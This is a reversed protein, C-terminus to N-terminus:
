EEGILNLIENPTILQGNAKNIREVVIRGSVVREVELVLQGLNMEPVIIKKAKNSIENILKKPFPWLINTKAWGAKINDRAKVVSFCFAPDM